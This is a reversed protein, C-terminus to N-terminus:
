RGPQISRDQPKQTMYCCYIDLPSCIDKLFVSCSEIGKREQYKDVMCLDIPIHVMRDPYISRSLHESQLKQHSSPQNSNSLYHWWM